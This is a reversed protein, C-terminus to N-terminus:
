QGHARELQTSSNDVDPELQARVLSHDLYYFLTCTRILKVFDRKPALRSMSWGRVIKQQVAPRLATYPRGRYALPLGQFAFLALVYPVRLYSPM